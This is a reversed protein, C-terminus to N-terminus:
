ADNTERIAAEALQEDHRVDQWRSVLFSLLLLISGMYGLRTWTVSVMAQYSQHIFMGFSGIIILSLGIRDLLLEKKTWARIAVCGGLIFLTGWVMAPWAADLNYFSTIPPFVIYAVGALIAAVYGVLRAYRRPYSAVVPPDPQPDTMSVELKDGAGATGYM